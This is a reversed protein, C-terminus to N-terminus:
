AADQEHSSWVNFSGLHYRVDMMLNDDFKALEIIKKILMLDATKKAAILAQRRVSENQHLVLEPVAGVLKQFDVHTHLYVIDAERHHRAIEGIAYLASATKAPSPARLMKALKKVVFPSISRLGEHVLANAAVRNDSAKALREALSRDSDGQFMTLVDLANSVIRRDKLAAARHLVSSFDQSFENLPVLNEVLRITASLVKRSLELDHKGEEINTVMVNLWNLLALQPLGNTKTLQISRLNGVMRHLSVTGIERAHGRIWEITQVLDSDSRYHSIVDLKEQAINHLSQTTFRLVESLEHHAVCSFLNKEQAFGKLKVSGYSSSIALMEISPLHREDFVIANGGKEHVHSLIRVTEILIPGAIGYGNVFRGYRLRGKAFSSKVTFPYGRKQLTMKNLESAVANIDRIASFAAAVSDGVSENKFYFIVEDGIFEHVLGRYRGIIHSAETFFENITAAFEEVPHENYIKSFNNIDTRVLTCEFEYPPERGSMLETRLSPLVQWAYLDKEEKLESQREDYSALGRMLVDAEKSHPNTRRYSRGGGKSIESISRTIDRFFFAFTAFCIILIGVLYDVLIKKQLNFRTKYFLNEADRVGVVLQTKSDLNETAYFYKGVPEHWIRSGSKSFDFTLKSLEDSAISTDKLKGMEYLSWFNIAESRRRSELFEALEGLDNRAVFYSRGILAEDNLRAAHEGLSKRYFDRWHTFTSYADYIVMVTVITIAYLVYVSVRKM